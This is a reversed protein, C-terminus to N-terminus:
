ARCCLLFLFLLCCLVYLSLWLFGRSWMFIRSSLIPHRSHISSTSRIKDSGLSILCISFMVLAIDPLIVCLTQHLFFCHSSFLGFCSSGQIWGIPNSGWIYLCTCNGLIYEFCCFCLLSCSKWCCRFTFWIPTLVSSCLLLLIRCCHFRSGPFFQFHFFWCSWSCCRLFLVLLVVFYGVGCPLATCLFLTTPGLLWWALFFSLTSICYHFVSHHIVCALSRFHKCCVIGNGCIHFFCFLYFCSRPMSSPSMLCLPFFCGHLM